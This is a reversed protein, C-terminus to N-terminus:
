KTIIIKNNDICFKIGTTREYSNLLIRVDEHRYLRGTLRINRIDDSTFVPTFNYWRSLSLMIDELRQGNFVFMHDIWATYQSVDVTEIRTNGTDENYVMRQSPQLKVEKGETPQFGISGEVLVASLPTETYGTVNFRTGYVRISGRDTTVIFPYTKDKAVDFFAEGKLYIHRETGEFAEPFRLETKSNLWVKTGDALHFTYEGGLPVTLTNYAVQKKPKETAAQAQIGISDLLQGIKDPTKETIGIERGDTLTLTAEVKGPVIAPAEAIQKVPQIEKNEPTLLSITLFILATAAVGSLWIAANQYILKHRTQRQQKLFRDSMKQGYDAQELEILRSALKMTKVEEYTARNKKSAQLWASLRAEEKETLKQKLVKAAILRSVDTYSEM